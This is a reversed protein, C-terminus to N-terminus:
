EDSTPNEELGPLSSINEIVDQYMFGQKSECWYQLYKVQLLLETAGPKRSAWKTM